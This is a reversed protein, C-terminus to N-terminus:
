AKKEKTEHGQIFNEYKVKIIFEGDSDSVPELEVELSDMDRPAPNSHGLDEDSVRRCHVDFTGGHCPCVFRDKELNISCGLHPCITTYAEVVPTGDERKAGRWILWVRGLVDDPHLTWADRRIDRIVAAKPVNEELESFSAARKFEGAAAPRNRPDALYGIAPVGLAAGFLGGLVNTGWKLFSRRGLLGAAWNWLSQKEM